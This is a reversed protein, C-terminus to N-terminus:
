NTTTTVTATVSFSEKARKKRRYNLSHLQIFMFMWYMSKGNKTKWFKTSLLGGGGGPYNICYWVKARGRMQVHKDCKIEERFAPAGNCLFRSFPFWVRRLLILGCVHGREDGLRNRISAHRFHLSQVCCCLKFRRTRVDWESQTQTHTSQVSRPTRSPRQVALMWMVKQRHLLGILLDLGIQVTGDPLQHPHFPLAHKASERRQM